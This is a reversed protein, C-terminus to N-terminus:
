PYDRMVVPLYVRYPYAIIVGAQDSLADWTAVVVGVHLGAELGATFLGSAGITGAGADTVSWTVPPNGM